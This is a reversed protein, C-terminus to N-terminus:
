GATPTERSSDTTRQRKKGEMVAGKEAVKPNNLVTCGPVMTTIIM